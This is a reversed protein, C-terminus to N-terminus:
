VKYFFNESVPIFGKNALYELPTERSIFYLFHKGSFYIDDYGGKSSTIFLDEAYIKWLEKELYADEGMFLLGFERCGNKVIKGTYVIEAYIM